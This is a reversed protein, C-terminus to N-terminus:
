SHPEDGMVEFLPLMNTVDADVHGNGKRDMRLNRGHVKMVRMGYVLGWKHSSRTKNSLEDARVLAYGLKKGLMVQMVNQQRAEARKGRGGICDEAVGYFLGIEDTMGGLDKNAVLFLVHTGTVLDWARTDYNKAETDIGLAKALKLKNM